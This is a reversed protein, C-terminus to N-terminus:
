VCLDAREAVRRQPPPLTPDDPGMVWRELELPEGVRYGVVLIEDGPHLNEWAVERWGDSWRRFFKRTRPPAPPPLLHASGGLLFAALRRFTKM